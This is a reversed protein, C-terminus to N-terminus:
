AHIEGQYAAVLRAYPGGATLLNQHTGSEVVKGADMVVVHDARMATALRHAIV